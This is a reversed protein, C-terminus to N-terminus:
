GTEAGVTDFFDAVIRLEQDVGEVFVAVLTELEGALVADLDPVAADVAGELGSLDGRPIQQTDKALLPIAQVRSSSRDRRLQHSM